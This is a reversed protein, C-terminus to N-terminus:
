DFTASLLLFCFAQVFPLVILALGYLASTAYQKKIFHVVLFVLLVIATLFFFSVLILEGTATQPFDRRLDNLIALDIWLHSLSFVVGIGTLIIALIHFFSLKM